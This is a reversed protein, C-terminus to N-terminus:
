QTATQAPSPPSTGPANSAPTPPPTQSPSSAAASQLTTLLPQPILPSSPNLYSPPYNRPMDKEWTTLITKFEKENKFMNENSYRSDNM